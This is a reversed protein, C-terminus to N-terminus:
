KQAESRILEVWREIRTRNVGLDSRGVLSRSYILVASRGDPLAAIKVNMTDPFGLLRSRQVYRLALQGDDRAVQVLRPEGALSGEVLRFAEPAPMDLIPAEVEGSAAGCFPPTCALADNPTDRRVLTAFDVEGLDAPGFRAWIREPGAIFFAGAAVLVVILALLGSVAFGSQLTM